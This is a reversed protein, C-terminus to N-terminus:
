KSNSDDDLDINPLKIGYDDLKKKMEPDKKLENAEDISKELKQLNKKHEPSEVIRLIRKKENKFINKFIGELSKQLLDKKMTVGM